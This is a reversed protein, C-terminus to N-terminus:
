THIEARTDPNTCALTHADKREHMHLQKQIQAQYVGTHTTATILYTDSEAYMNTYTFPLPIEKKSTVALTVSSLTTTVSVALSPIVRVGVNWRSWSMGLSTRYGVKRSQSTFVFRNTFRPLFVLEKSSAGSVPRTADSSKYCFLPIRDFHRHRCFCSTIVTNQYGFKVIPGHHINFTSNVSELSIPFLYTSDTILSLYHPEM